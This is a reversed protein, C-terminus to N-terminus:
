SMNQTVRHKRIQLRAFFSGLLSLIFGSSVMLAYSLRRLRAAMVWSVDSGARASHQINALIITTM